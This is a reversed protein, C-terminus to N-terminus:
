PTAWKTKLYLELADRNADSLASLCVVVECVYGNLYYGATFGSDSSNRLGGMYLATAMDRNGASDGTFSATGNTALDIRQTVAGNTRDIVVGVTSCSPTGITSSNARYSSSNYYISGLQSTERLMVYSGVLPSSAKYKGLFTQNAATGFKVVAFISVSNTGLDLTDGASMWNASASAFTVVNLGNQGSSTYTPQNGGTAQTFHRANGSKDNWQSVTSGNLTISGSDSADLWLAPSLSMPMSLSARRLPHLLDPAVTAM